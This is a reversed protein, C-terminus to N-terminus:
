GPTLITGLIGNLPTNLEHSLSSALNGRLESLHNELLQITEERLQLLSQIHDYQRKIRLMSHVRARLEVANIPKTIFDDAGARLCQDLDSKANLATVMIIPVTQWQPKAKIQRCVELGDIEPMMVDLLILDPNFTALAAIAEYGGAAYDLQYNQTSLLTELVDFNDPEDDVVLIAPKSM